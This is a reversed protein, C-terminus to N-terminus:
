IEYVNTVRFTCKSFANGQMASFFYYRLNIMKMCHFFIKQFDDSHLKSCSAFYNEVFGFKKNLQNLPKCNKKRKLEPCDLDDIFSISFFEVVVELAYVVFLKSLLLLSPTVM